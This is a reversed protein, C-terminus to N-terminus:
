VAPAAAARFEAAEQYVKLLAEAQAEPAFREARRAARLGHDRRLGADNALRNVAMAIASADRPDAFLAAGDWLERYTPIDALVLGAGSHAAELAALGFPEYTSPSVFIAARAMLDRVYRNPREGLAAVHRIEIKQGNQGTLPGVVLVPWSIDGAASDLVAGNKGEDWWRGAALVFDEKPAADRGDVANPVLAMREIKGYCERLLAAHSASPAVVADANDFGARNRRRQWAWGAPVECGRVARFWSVVCSHSVVVVPCPVRLGCAQSPLNLHLLDIEREAVLGELTGRLGELEAEFTAMWDLQADLWVLEGLAEAERSQVASPMPGLGAFVVSIGRARLAAAANMAYRWIGGVADVTMLVRRPRDTMGQLM